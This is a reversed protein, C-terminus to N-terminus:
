AEEDERKRLRLGRQLHNVIRNFLGRQPSRHPISQEMLTDSERKVIGALGISHAANYFAFVHRQPVQLARATFPLTMPHELWLAAIRTADPVELLRTLNPWHRLFVRQQLDFGAPLRGRYTWLALKWLFADSRLSIMASSWPVKDPTLPRPEVEFEEDAIPSGALAKLTDDGIDCRIEEGGYLLLHHRGRITVLRTPTSDGTARLIDRLRRILHNRDELRIAAVAAPDEPDIDPHEGCLERFREQEPLESDPVATTLDFFAAMTHSGPESATATTRSVTATHRPERTSTTRSPEPSVPGEAIPLVRAPGARGEATVTGATASLPVSHVSEALASELRALAKLLDGSRFPKRLLLDPEECPHDRLSILLAPRGPHQERYRRWEERAGIGDLDVIVARAEATETFRYRGGARSDFLLELTQRTRRTAGVLDLSLAKM